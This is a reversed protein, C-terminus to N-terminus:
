QKLIWKALKKAEKESIKVGRAEASPMANPGWHEAGGKRIKEALKAEAKETGKHLKAIAQFSPGKVEKDVAHCEFCKKATALKSDAHAAAIGIAPALAVVMTLLKKM